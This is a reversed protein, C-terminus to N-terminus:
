EWKAQGSSLTYVAGKIKFVGTKNDLEAFKSEITRKSVNDTLKVNYLDAEGNKFDIIAQDAEVILSPQDARFIKLLLHNVVGRTILGFDAPQHVKLPNATGSILAQDIGEFVNLGDNGYNEIVLNNVTCETVPNFQFVFFRRRNIKLEDASIVSQRRGESVRTIRFGTIHLPYKNEGPNFHLSRNNPSQGPKFYIGLAISIGTAILILWVFPWKFGKM